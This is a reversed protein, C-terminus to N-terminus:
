SRCAVFLTNTLHSSYRRNSGIYQKCRMGIHHLLFIIHVATCLVLIPKGRSAAFKFLPQRQQAQKVDHSYDSHLTVRTKRIFDHGRM